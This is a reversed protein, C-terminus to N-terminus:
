FAKKAIATLNQNDFMYFIRVAQRLLVLPVYLFRKLMATKRCGKDFLFYFLSNYFSAPTCILDAPFDKIFKINNFGYKRLIGSLSEKSFFYLHRPAELNYYYPGFLKSEFFEDNPVAIWLIGRPSLIRKIEQFLDELNHIHELSQFLFIFDFFKETFACEKIKKNYIKGRVNNPFFKTACDSPEVGYADYGERTLISLLHGNGCGIDLVKGNTKYGRIDRILKQTFLKFLPQMFVYAGSDGPKHFDNKYFEWISEQTPRPNLFKFGCGQCIVVKFRVDCTSYRFDRTTFLCSHNKSGCIPCDITEIQM